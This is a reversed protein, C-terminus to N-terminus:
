TFYDWNFFFIWLLHLTNKSFVAFNCCRCHCCGLYLNNLLLIRIFNFVYAYLM